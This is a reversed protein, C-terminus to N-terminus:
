LFLCFFALFSMTNYIKRYIQILEMTKYKQAIEQTKKLEMFCEAHPLKECIQKLQFRIRMSFFLQIRIRMAIFAPDPDALFSHPDM